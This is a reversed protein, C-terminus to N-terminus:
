AKQQRRRRLALGLLGAGMLAVTGPEPVTTSTSLTSIQAFGSPGSWVIRAVPGSFAYTGLVDGSSANIAFSDLLSNATDYASYTASFGDIVWYDITASSPSALDISAPDINISLGQADFTDRGDDYWYAQNVTIGYSSWENGVVPSGSVCSPCETSNFNIVVANATATIGLAVMVLLASMIKKM